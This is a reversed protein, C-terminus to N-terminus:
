EEKKDIFPDQRGGNPEKIQNKIKRNQLIRCIAGITMGTLEQEAANQNKMRKALGCWHGYLEKTTMDKYYQGDSATYTEAAKTDIDPVNVPKSFQALFEDENFEKRPKEIRPTNQVIEGSDTVIVPKGEPITEFETEDLMGLGCLSLTLRRKAKTVAKMIVNEYKGSLDRKSVAGIEVDHRGAKNSGKATAIVIDGETEISVDDINVDYLKRLQDTADKRAYLTLRGGLNIYDFPKTLPNLGLSRCVQSYYDLRQQPTLKSLDGDVLVTELLEASPATMIETTEM